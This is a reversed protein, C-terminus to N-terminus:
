PISLRIHDVQTPFHCEKKIFMTLYTLGQQSAYVAPTCNQDITVSTGHYPIMSCYFMHEQNEDTIQGYM